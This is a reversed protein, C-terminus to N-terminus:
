ESGTSHRNGVRGLDPSVIRRQERFEGFLMAAANTMLVDLGGM